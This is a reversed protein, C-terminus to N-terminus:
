PVAPDRLRGITLSVVAVPEAKGKLEITRREGTGDVRAIRATDESVLIEGAAAVSALRAAVNVADGIATLEVHTADGLAGVWATGTHVGAGMPLWPGGPDEHGTARLLAVAAALAKAPHETGAALPFFMAMVEDGVFKDVSGDNGFVASTAVRYFRNMLSRFATASMQEAIHTSGRVDAFMLSCEIEAGGRHSRMYDFCGNCLNPNINSPGKGVFRMVPGGLGGFPAACAKCRPSAPLHAFVRRLAREQPDGKTLYDYWFADEEVGPQGPGSKPESGSANAAQTDEGPM